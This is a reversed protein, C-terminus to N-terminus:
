MKKNFRAMEYHFLQCMIKLFNKDNETIFHFECNAIIDTKNQLLTDCYSFYSATVETSEGFKSADLLLMNMSDTSM